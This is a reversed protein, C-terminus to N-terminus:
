AQDERVVSRGHERGARPANKQDHYHARAERLYRRFTDCSDPLGDGEVRVDRRLWRFVEADTRGALDPDQELAWRFLQYARERSPPLQRGNATAPAPPAAALCLDDPGVEGGDCTQVARRIVWQLERVNDPWRHRRLRDRARASLSPAPRGLAAASQRLFHDALRQVDDGRQRLPPVAIATDALLSYLDPDLRGAALAAALDHSSCALVRVRVRRREAGRGVRQVVGEQILRLIRAQICLSPVNFHDLLVAGGDAQEFLGPCPRDVGPYAGVECGFLEDELGDDPFAVCNARLLPRDRRDGYRHVARAVLEKGTGPEGTILVPRDHRAAEGIRQFVARMADSDGLLADEGAAALDDPQARFRALDAAQGVLRLLPELSRDLDDPKPLYRFAGLKAARIAIDANGWHTFLVVPLEVRRGRLKELFELGLMIPMKYDLLVVDFAGAQGTLLDLGGEPSIQWCVEHGHGRLAEALEPSFGPDDDILLIRSV